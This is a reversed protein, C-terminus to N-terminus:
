QFTRELQQVVLPPVVLFIAARGVVFPKFGKGLQPALRSFAFSNVLLTGVCAASDTILTTRDIGRVFYDSVQCVHNYTTISSAGALTLAGTCALLGSKTPLGPYAALAGLASGLVAGGWKGGDFDETRNEISGQSHLITQFVGMQIGFYMAMPVVVARGPGTVAMLAGATAGGMAGFIYGCFM